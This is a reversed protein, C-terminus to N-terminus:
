HGELHNKIYHERLERFSKALIKRSEAYSFGMSKLRDLALKKVKKNVTLKKM